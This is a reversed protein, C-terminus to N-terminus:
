KLSFTIFIIIIAAAAVNHKALLENASSFNPP